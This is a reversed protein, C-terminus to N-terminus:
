PHTRPPPSLAPWVLRRGGAPGLCRDRSHVKRGLPSGAINSGHGYGCAHASVASRDINRAQRQRHKGGWWALPTLADSGYAEACWISDWGLEDAAAVAEAVSVPPGQSWYGTNYGLKM